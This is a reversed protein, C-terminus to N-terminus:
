DCPEEHLGGWAVGAKVSMALQPAYLENGAHCILIAKSSFLIFRRTDM